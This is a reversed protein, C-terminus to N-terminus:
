LAQRLGVKYSHDEIIRKQYRVVGDLGPFLQKENIELSDLVKLVLLSETHPIMLKILINAHPTPEYNDSIYDQLCVKDDKPSKLVKLTFVGQQAKLNDNDLYMPRIIKLEHNTYDQPVTIAMHNLFYLSFHKESNFNNLAEIAAFYLATYVNYSWDLLRTPLGYHQALAAIDYLEEPLWSLGEEFVKWGFSDFNYKTIENRWTKVDKIRLGRLDANIFFNRLIRSERTCVTEFTLEAKPNTKYDSLDEMLRSNYNRCASPILKFDSDSQGRYIYNSNDIGNKIMTVPNLFDFLEEVSNFVKQAYKTNFM